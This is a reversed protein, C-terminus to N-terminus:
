NTSAPRTTPRPLGAAWVGTKMAILKPEWSKAYLAEAQKQSLKAITPPNHGAELEPVLQVVTTLPEFRVSGDAYLVNAGEMNHNAPDEWAVACNPSSRDTLAAGVYVYSCCGPETLGAAEEAPTSGKAKIDTSGPCVFGYAGLGENAILPSLSDPFMHGSESAYVTCALGIQRLHTSCLRRNAIPRSYGGPMLHAMLGVAGVICIMVLLGWSIARPNLKGNPAPPVTEYDLPTRQAM